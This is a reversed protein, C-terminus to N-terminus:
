NEEERERGMMGWVSGSSAGGASSGPAQAISDVKVAGGGDV